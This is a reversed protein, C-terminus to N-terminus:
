LMAVVITIDSANRYTKRLPWHVPFQICVAASVGTQSQATIWLDILTTHTFWQLAEYRHLYQTEDFGLTHMPPLTDCIHVDNTM